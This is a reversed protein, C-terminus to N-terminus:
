RMATSMNQLMIDQTGYEDAVIRVWFVGRGNISGITNVNLRQDAAVEEAHLAVLYGVATSVM